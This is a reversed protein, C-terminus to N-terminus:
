KDLDTLEITEAIQGVSGRDVELSISDGNGQWKLFDLYVTDNSGLSIDDHGFVQEGADDIRDVALAYVGDEKNGTSSM